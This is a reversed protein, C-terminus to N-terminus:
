IPDLRAFMIREYRFVGSVYQPVSRYSAAKMTACFGRLAEVSVPFPTLANQTCFGVYLKVRSDMAAWTRLAFMGDTLAQIATKLKVPDNAVDFFARTKACRAVGLEGPASRKLGSHRPVESPFQGGKWASPASGMALDARLSDM